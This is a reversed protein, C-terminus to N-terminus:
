VSRCMSYCMASRVVCQDGYQYVCLTACLLASLVNTSMSIYVYLLVYCLPCCMPGWVSICMSYCMAPRVVCQDEYQYVCLTACLLASLM